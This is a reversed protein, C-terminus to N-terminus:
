TYITREGGAQSASIFNHRDAGSSHTSSVPFFLSFSVMFVSAWCSPAVPHARQSAPSATEAKSAVFISDAFHNSIVVMGM